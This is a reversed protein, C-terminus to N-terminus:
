ISKKAKGNGYYKDFIKKTHGIPQATDRSHEKLYARNDTRGKKDMKTVLKKKCEVCVETVSQSDSKIIKYDHAHM